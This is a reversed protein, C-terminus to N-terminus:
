RFNPKKPKPGPKSLAQSKHLSQQNKHYCMLQTIQSNSSNPLRLEISHKVNTHHISIGRGISRLLRWLALTSFLLLVWCSAQNPGSTESRQAKQYIAHKASLSPEKLASQSIPQRKLAFPWVIQHHTPHLGSQWKSKKPGSHDTHSSWTSTM